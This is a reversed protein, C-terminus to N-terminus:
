PKVKLKERIKDNPYKKNWGRVMEKLNIRFNEESDFLVDNDLCWKLYFKSKYFVKLAKKTKLHKKYEICMELIAGSENKEYERFIRHDNWRKKTGAVATIAFELVEQPEYNMQRLYFVLHSWTKAKLSNDKKYAKIIDVPTKLKNKQMYTTLGTGVIPPREYPSKKSAPLGKLVSLIGTAADEIRDLPRAKDILPVVPAIRSPKLITKRTKGRSLSMAQEHKAREITERLARSNHRVMDMTQALKDKPVYNKIQYLGDEVSHFTKELTDTIRRHQDLSTRYFEESIFDYFVKNAKDQLVKNAKEAKKLQFDEEREKEMIKIELSRRERIWKNSKM